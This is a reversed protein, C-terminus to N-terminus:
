VTTLCNDLLVDFLNNSDLHFIVKKLDLYRKMWVEMDGDDISGVVSHCRRCVWVGLKPNSDDWHHYNLRGCKGGCVECINDPRARKDVRGAIGCIYHKRRYDKLYEKNNRYYRRAYEKAKESNRRRWDVMYEASTKM